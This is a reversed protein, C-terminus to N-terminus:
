EKTQFDSYISDPVPCFSLPIFRRSLIFVSSIRLPYAEQGPKHFTRRAAVTHDRHLIPLDVSVVPSMILDDIIVGAAIMPLRFPPRAAEPM